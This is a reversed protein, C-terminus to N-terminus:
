DNHTVRVREILKTLEEAVEGIDMSATFRLCRGAPRRAVEIWEPPIACAGHMAGSLAGVLAALTDSDRGFNAAQIVGEVFDGGTLRFLAFAESLAEASSARYQTFLEDHLPVWARRLDGCSEEVVGMARDFWRGLWSDDPIQSRATTVIEDVPAGAM